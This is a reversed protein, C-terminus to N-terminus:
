FIQNQCNQLVLMSSKVFIKPGLNSILSNSVFIQICFLLDFFNELSMLKSKGLVRTASVEKPDIIFLKAAKGTKCYIAFHEDNNIFVNYKAHGIYKRAKALTKEVTVVPEEYAIKYVEVEALDILLTSKKVGHKRCDIREKRNEKKVPKQSAEDAVSSASAACVSDLMYADLSCQTETDDFYIVDIRSQDLDLSDLIAHCYNKADVSIVIHDAPELEELALIKRETELDDITHTSKFLKNLSTKSRIQVTVPLDSSSGLENKSTEM